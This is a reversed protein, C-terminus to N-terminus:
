EESDQSDELMVLTWGKPIPKDAPWPCICLATEKEEMVIGKCGM